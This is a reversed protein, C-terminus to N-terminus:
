LSRHKRHFARQRVQVLLAAEGAYFFLQDVEVLSLHKDIVLAPGVHLLAIRPASRAGGCGQPRGAFRRGTECSGLGPRRHARQRLGTQCERVVYHGVHPGTIRCERFQLAVKGGRRTMLIMM